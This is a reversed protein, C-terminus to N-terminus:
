AGAALRHDTAGLPVSWRSAGDMAGLAHVTGDALSTYAVGGIVVLGVEGIQSEQAPYRWAASGSEPRLAEAQTANVYLLGNVLSAPTVHMFGHMSDTWRVDGTHADLAHVGCSVPSGPGPAGGFCTEYLTDGDLLPDSTEGQGCSNAAWCVAGTSANLAYITHFAAVYLGTGTATASNLSIPQYQAALDARWHVAGTVTNLAALVTASQAVYVLGNAVVPAMTANADTAYRWLVTGDSARLAVLGGALYNQAYVTGGAVTLTAIGGGIQYQWRATGTAGDLARLIGDAGPVYVIGSVVQLPLGGGYNSGGPIQAQWKVSGDAAGLALLTTAAGAAQAGNTVYVM